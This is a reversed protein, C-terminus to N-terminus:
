FKAKVHTAIEDLHAKITAVDEIQGTLVQIAMAAVKYATQTKISDITEPSRGSSSSEVPNKQNCTYCKKYKDDKLEKGCDACTPKGSTQTKEKEEAVPAESDSIKTVKGDKNVRDVFVQGNKERYDIGIVDGEEFAKSAYNYVTQNTEAWKEAGDDFELKLLCKAGKKYARRFKM